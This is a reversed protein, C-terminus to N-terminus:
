NQVRKLYFRLQAAPNNIIENVEAKNLKIKSTDISKYEENYVRYKNKDIIKAEEAIRFLAQEQQGSYQEYLYMEYDEKSEKNLVYYVFTRAKEKGLQNIGPLLKTCFYERNSARKDYDSKNKFYETKLFTEFEESATDYKGVIAPHLHKEYNYKSVKDILQPLGKDTYYPEGFIEEYISDQWSGQEPEPLQRLRNVMFDLGLLKKKDSEFYKTAEVNEKRNKFHEHTESVLNDLSKGQDNLKDPRVGDLLIQLELPNSVSKIQEETLYIVNELNRIKSMQDSLPNRDRSFKKYEYYSQNSTLNEIALNAQAVLKEYPSLSLTEQWKEVEQDNRVNYKDKFNLDWTVTSEWNSWDYNIYYARLKDYLFSGLGYSAGIVPFYVYSKKVLPVAPIM